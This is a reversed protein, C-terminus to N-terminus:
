SSLYTRSCGVVGPSETPPSAPGREAQELAAELIPSVVGMPFLVDDDFEQSPTVQLPSPAFLASHSALHFLLPPLMGHSSHMVQMPTSAAAAAATPSVFATSPAEAQAPDYLKFKHLM